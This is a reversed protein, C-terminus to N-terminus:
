HHSASRSVPRLPAARRVVSFCSTVTEQTPSLNLDHERDDLIAGLSKPSAHPPRQGWSQLSSQSEERRERSSGGARSGQECKGFM